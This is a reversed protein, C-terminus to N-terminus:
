LCIERIRNPFTPRNGLIYLSLWSGDIRSKFGDSSREEQGSKLGSQQPLFKDLGNRNGQGPTCRDFQFCIVSFTFNCLFM